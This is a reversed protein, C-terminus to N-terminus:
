AKDIGVYGPLVPNMEERHGGPEQAADQDVVRFSM